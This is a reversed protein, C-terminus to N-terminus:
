EGQGLSYVVKGDFKYLNETKIIELGKANIAAQLEIVQQYRMAASKSDFRCRWHDTCFTEPQGEPWVQTGRNSIGSLQLAATECTKLQEALKDAQTNAAYLFIDIGVLERQMTDFESPRQYTLEIPCYDNRYTAPAFKEPLKGLREVVAKAFEQTGVKKRSLAPDYIDATHIGEELTRLWANQIKEAVESQGIHVLMMIAAQLLGSPNAINKGTIDPASGHIAEFMACHDGINASGGLGVSGAVQAAVDSIIDGYLNLTVIVDFQEPTDALRATGIDIIMHDATIEPYEKAIQDFIKHFLGDSLKMINDKTFCTVKSRNNQRAYEFAYRIIKESGPVSILKLCQIMEPSQQYEIGGYLDEENERVIVVDMKPFKTKVYPSYAICPRVNAYLGLTKRVTVNLSKVGGGQPTTIPAKLFVKTRRLSEWSSPEIGAQVGKQYLKEGIQITEIAINAGAERLVLLTAEMIEPGIGDGRAVTIPTPQTM